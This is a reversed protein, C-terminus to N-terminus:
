LNRLKISLDRFRKNLGELQEIKGFSQALKIQASLKELSAKVLARKLESIVLKVEEQYAKPDTFKADIETLYLRDVTGVLEGPLTKVFDAVQFKRSQFYISDLYLVLLVYISKFEESILLTEPFPPVFTLNPPIKLLLVILYEELLERRSRVSLKTDTIELISQTSTSKESGRKGIEKRLVEESTGLLAALKQLYHEFILPDTIKSWIPLLEAAIQRKGEASEVPYRLSVSRLYYDYIPESSSVAEEWSGPDKQSLEAPDKGEPLKIVKLNFGMQDALEIGRRSASDGALDKDFCLSLNETYRRLLNLQGSTLATGKVAVINRVGAQYSLIMDMEGETLIAEDKSKIEAKSLHLGYLFESKDFILTQPSNLYKPEGEGLIRGAFGRIGGRVDILPFTVRGRFRDYCGSRSPVALGAEIIESVAFGRKRLFSTLSDWSNPAYGLNFKKVTEEKIGRSQLYNLANQGLRHSTLLYNFFQAAKQNAELLRERKNTAEGKKRKLVVGARQALLELSESFEIGEKEMLFKFHDGGKGCGFCHWIGREPSVVFSPTKEQHFPCNAKFNVGTKKLPLYEQILDVINIKQKILELDDMDTM